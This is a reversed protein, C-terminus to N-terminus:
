KYRERLKTWAKKSIEFRYTLHKKDIFKAEIEDLLKNMLEKEKSKM